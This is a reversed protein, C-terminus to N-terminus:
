ENTILKVVLRKKAEFDANKLFYGLFNAEPSLRIHSIHLGVVKNISSGDTCLDRLFNEQYMKNRFPTYITSILQYTPNAHYENSNNKKTNQYFSELDSMLDCHQKKELFEKIAITFLNEQSPETGAPIKDEPLGIYIDHRITNPSAQYKLSWITHIREM